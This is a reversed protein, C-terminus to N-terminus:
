YRATKYYTKVHESERYGAHQPKNSDHQSLGSECAAASTAAAAGLALGAGTLLRRRDIRGSREKDTRMTLGGIIDHRRGSVACASLSFAAAFNRAAAFVKGATSRFGKRRRPQV